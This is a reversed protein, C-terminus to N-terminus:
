GDALQTLPRSGIFTYNPEFVLIHSGPPTNESLYRGAEAYAPKVGNVQAMTAQMQMPLRWIALAIIAAVILWRPDLRLRRGKLTLWM